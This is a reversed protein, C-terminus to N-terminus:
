FFGIRAAWFGAAGIVLWKIAELTIAQWREHTKKAPQNELIHVKENLEKQGNKVDKIDLQLDSMSSALNEVSSAIKYIARQETKIEKIETECDGIRRESAKCRSHVEQLKVAM